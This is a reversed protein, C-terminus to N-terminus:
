KKMQKVEKEKLVLYEIKLKKKKTLEIKKLTKEHENKLCQVRGNLLLNDKEYQKRQDKMLKLKAHLQYLYEDDIPENSIVEGM